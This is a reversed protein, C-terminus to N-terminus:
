KQHTVIRPKQQPSNKPKASEDSKPLHPQGLQQSNSGLNCLSAVCTMLPNVGNSGNSCECNLSATMLRSMPTSDASNVKIILIGTIITPIATLTTIIPYIEWGNKICAGIIITITIGYSMWLYGIATDFHSKVMRQKGRRSTHIWSIIGGVISLLWVVEPHEFDTYVIGVYHAMHIAVILWGWFLFYFRGEQVENKATEIMETIINLSQTNTLDNKM